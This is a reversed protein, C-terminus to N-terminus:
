IKNGHDELRGSPRACDEPRNPLRSLCRQSSDVQGHTQSKRDTLGQRRIAALLRISRLSAHPIEGSFMRAQFGPKDLTRLYRSRTREVEVFAVPIRHNVAKAFSRFIFRQFQEERPVARRVAYLRRKVPGGNASAFAHRDQDATRFRIHPDSSVAVWFPAVWRSLRNRALDTALRDDPRLETPAPLGDVGALPVLLAFALLGPAIDALVPDRDSLRNRPAAANVVSFLRILPRRPFPVPSSM